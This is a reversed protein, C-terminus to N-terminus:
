SNRMDNKIGAYLLKAWAAAPHDPHKETLRGLYRLAQEPKNLKHTYLEILERSVAVETPADINSINLARKYWAEADELRAMKDRYVRALRVAPEPDLPHDEALLEYAEAAEAYLGRAVLSEALSYERLPPTTHGGPSYISAGAVGSKEAILMPLTMVIVFVGVGILVAAWLKQGGPGAAAGMALLGFIFAPAVTKLRYAQDASNVDKLPRKM